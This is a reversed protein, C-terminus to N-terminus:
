YSIIQNMKMNDKISGTYILALILIGAIVLGVFGTMVVYEMSVQGRRRCPFIKKLGM